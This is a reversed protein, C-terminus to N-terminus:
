SALSKPICMLSKLSTLNAILDENNCFISFGMESGIKSMIIREVYITHAYVCRPPKLKRM